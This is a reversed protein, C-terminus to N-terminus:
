PCWAGISPTVKVARNIGGGTYTILIRHNTYDTGDDPDANIVRTIGAPAPIANAGSTISDILPGVLGDSASTPKCRTLFNTLDTAIDPDPFYYNADGYSGSCKAGAAAITAADATCFGSCCTFEEARKLIMSINTDIAASAEALAGTRQSSRNATMLITATGGVVIALLVTAIMVEVLSFGDATLPLLPAPIRRLLPLTM